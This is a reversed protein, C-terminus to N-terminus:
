PDQKRSCFSPNSARERGTFSDKKISCRVSLRHLTEGGLRSVSTLGCVHTMAARIGAGWSLAFLAALSELCM